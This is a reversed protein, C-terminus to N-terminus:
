FNSYDTIDIVEDKTHIKVGWGIGGCPYFEYSITGKEKYIKQAQEYEGESLRFYYKSDSYPVLKYTWSDFIKFRNIRRKIERIFLMWKTAKVYEGKKKSYIWTEKKSKM